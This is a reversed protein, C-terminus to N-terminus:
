LEHIDDAVHEIAGKPDRLAHGVQWGADWLPYLLAEAIPRVKDARATTILRVDLDGLVRPVPPLREGEPAADPRASITPACSAIVPWAVEAAGQKAAEFRSFGQERFRYINEVIVIANDVLMGLAIILSFLIIFNLTQGMAQFVIFSVFMSLPIAIGVLMANRLGLFFLLVAVVFILGSIINNELDRVMNEVFVSQDGTIVVRTGGPM